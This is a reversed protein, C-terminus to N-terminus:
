VKHQQILTEHFIPARSKGKYRPISESAPTVTMPSQLM